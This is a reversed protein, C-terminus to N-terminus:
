YGYPFEMRWNTATRTTDIPEGFRDRQQPNEAQERDYYGGNNIKSNDRPGTVQSWYAAGFKRTM